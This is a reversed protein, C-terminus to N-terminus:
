QFPAEHLCTLSATGFPLEIVAHSKVDIGHKKCRETLAKLLEELDSQIRDARVQLIWLAETNSVNVYFGLGIMTPLLCFKVQLLGDASGGREMNVIAQHLEM